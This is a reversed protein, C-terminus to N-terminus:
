TRVGLAARDDATEASGSDATNNAILASAAKFTGQDTACDARDTARGDAVRLVALAAVISKLCTDTFFVFDMLMFFFM